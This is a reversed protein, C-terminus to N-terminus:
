SAYCGMHAATYSEFVKKMMFLVPLLHPDGAYIGENLILPM